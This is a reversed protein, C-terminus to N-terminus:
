NRTVAGNTADVSVYFIVGDNTLLKIRYGPHGNVNASQVKLVKGSYRRQAIQVAQQASTVVLNNNQNNNQRSNNFGPSLNVGTSYSLVSAYSSVSCTLSLIALMLSLMIANVNLMRQM